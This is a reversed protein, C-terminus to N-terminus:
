SKTRMIPRVTAWLDAHVDSPSQEGNVIVWDYKEALSLYANRVRRLYGLDGEHVDRGKSKRSFSTRPSVDLVIVRNPQPLGEEIASLWKLPLGHALGYALNSPSYRNVIMRVGNSIETAIDRAREWRNAAYLLHVARYDFRNRGSLYSRLQRGLPTRYDPFDITSVPYRLAQLKKALLLTQTRKGSQDIGEVAILKGSGRRL